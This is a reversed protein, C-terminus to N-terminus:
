RNFLFEKSSLVSWYLDEIQERPIQGNADKAGLVDLLKQKEAPKPERALAALYLDDIIEEVPLKQSLQADIRNGKAALKENLTDGNSIHLVQVMSPQSTRECECTIVREPRGFTKLFYNDVAVDPLQMARWGAPFNGFKTPADTVQSMADLLVEAMLREPYFRSYFRTDAENGRTVQSSRQYAASQLILKMLAQLDFDNEVLYDALADLLPANSAPNSLRLDDVNEVLGVNMFNAWVRNTVARSFFRNEPSTLWAALHERRNQPSDLPLTEGDLPQPPQAVGTLPQIVDGSSAEFITKNGDGAAEKTRVRAYLNGMAFYQRNTWKELPHNHCKACGISLGLFAQSTTEALDLPDDHLVFFNTAGNELTSGKATVLQRVMEDWPTNAAVNDRVWRSYAWMAAPKLKESSVLMVDSWKYTWYDVLESRQFLSDILKNRKDADKSALFARAEDATPLRGITDLMARRLFEGDSAPPSPPINLDQLKALVFEDILNNRPAKAFVAPDVQNEFPVTVSALAVQSLYWVTIAGEGQGVVRVQGDEAVEAVTLNASTFKAWRTVDETHGDTFHAVVVLQQSDGPKLVAQPPFVELHDLRADNKEPAPTGAAIWSAIVNYSRSGVDLRVGGGHAVAGTPKTLLLSRGPDSPVIRRGRAHRTIAAFDGEPDFGRLSLRFGAKGAQAGHCAGSNCAAKTLVSQVHNRFSWTFPEQMQKVHVRAKVEGLPTRATLEASGDGVPLAVGDEVRVVKPDSSTWKEVALPGRIRGASQRAVAMQQLSQPGTLTFEAPFVTATEAEAAPVVSPALFVALLSLACHWTM